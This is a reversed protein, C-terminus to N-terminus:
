DKKIDALRDKIGALSQELVEQRSKLIEEENLPSQQQGQSVNSDWCFGRGRGVRGGRGIEAGNGGFRRGSVFGRGAFDQDASSCRGQGRGTM